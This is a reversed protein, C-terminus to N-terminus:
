KFVFLVVIVFFVQLYKPNVAAKCFEKRKNNYDISSQIFNKKKNQEAEVLYLQVTTFLSHVITLSFLVKVDTKEFYAVSTLVSVSRDKM